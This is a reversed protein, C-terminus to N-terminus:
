RWTKAETENLKKSWGLNADARYPVAARGNKWANAHATLSGVRQGGDTLDDAGNIVPQLTSPGNDGTQSVEATPAAPEGEGVFESAARIAAIHIERKLKALSALAEPTFPAGPDNAVHQVLYELDESNVPMAIAEEGSAASVPNAAEGRSTVFIEALCMWAKDRAPDVNAPPANLEDWYQAKERATRELASVQTLLEDWSDRDWLFTEKKPARILPSIEIEFGVQASANRM